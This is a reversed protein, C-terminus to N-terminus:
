SIAQWHKWRGWATIWLIEFKTLSLVQPVLRSLLWWQQRQLEIYRCISAHRVSYKNHLWIQVLHRCDSLHYSWSQHWHSLNYPWLKLTLCTFWYLEISLAYLLLFHQVCCFQIMQCKFWLVPCENPYDFSLLHSRLDWGSGSAKLPNTSLMRMVPM